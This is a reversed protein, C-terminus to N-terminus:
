KGKCGQSDITRGFGIGESGDQQGFPFPNDNAKSFM